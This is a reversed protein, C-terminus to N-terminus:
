KVLDVIASKILEKGRLAGSYSIHDEDLFFIEGQDRVLVKREENVFLDYLSLYHVWANAESLEKVRQNGQKVEEPRHAHILTQSNLDTLESTQYAVFLPVSYDGVEVEPPQEFFLVESGCDRIYDLMDQYRNLDYRVSWRDVIIVLSPSWKKIKELRNTDFVKKQEATFIGMAREKVPIEIFSATGRATFFSVSLGLEESLEDIVKSWMLAHSSGLVVIDPAGEGYQKLIGDKAYASFQGPNRKTKILGVVGESPEPAFPVVDYSPNFSKVASFRSLDYNYDARILVVAMVISAILAVTVPKLVDAMKRTPKEIFQYSLFTCGIILGVIWPLSVAGSGKLEFAAALVIVPWHWLYLSYSCKGIYVVPAWSLLGGALCKEGGSFRIVLVTGVVPLLAWFGPFGDSGQILYYGAGILSLGAFAMTRSINGKPAPGRSREFIALLCGAALEWARTPLFYFAANPHHTTAYVGICFSFISGALILPFVRKPTFKLLTLLLLPYFLYFQEEVSLSWTHLLPANEAAPGWYNGSLQWMEVNAYLFIASLVQEGIRKWASGFMISYSAIATVFLMVLMAPLIRRVRRMWFGSFTFTGAAQEKLIISTILFGSIVFFVDVGIFGGPIWPLGLHFLVVPLVAVARLGDVEPRYKIASM